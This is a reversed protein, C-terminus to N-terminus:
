RTAPQASVPLAAELQPKHGWLTGRDHRQVIWTNDDVLRGGWGYEVEFGSPTMVYFSVMQDNSHRGLTTALPVGAKAAIDMAAGVDDISNTELMFHWMRKDRSRPLNKGSPQFAISHHRPNCHLFVMTGIYDSIHFGLVDTLLRVSDDRNSSRLVVHGMGLAGTKFGSMARGPRFPPDWRMHPGVCLEFPLEGTEFKVFDLVRRQTIEAPTGQTLTVGAGRLADKSQEYEVHTAAQLGIYVVDDEGTPHLTVRHHCEDMRLYVTGDAAGAVVEMGLVDSAFSRWRAMDSVGIGVYALQSVAMDDDGKAGDRPTIRPYWAARWECLLALM